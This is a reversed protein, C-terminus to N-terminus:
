QRAERWAGWTTILTLAAGATVAFWLQGKWWVTGGLMAVVWGLAWAGMAQVWRRSFGAKSARAFVVMVTVLIALWAGMAAMPLWVLHEDSRVVLHLAVVFMTSVGGLGLLFAIHPWSAGARAISGLRGAEDLLHRARAADMEGTM